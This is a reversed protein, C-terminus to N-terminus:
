YRRDPDQLFCHYDEYSSSPIPYIFVETEGKTGERRVCCRTGTGTCRTGTRFWVGRFGPGESGSGGFGGLFVEDQNARSQRSQGAKGLRAEDGQKTDKEDQNLM